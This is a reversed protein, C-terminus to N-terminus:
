LAFGKALMTKLFGTVKDTRDFKGDAVEALFFEFTHTTKFQTAYSSDRELLDMTISGGPFTIVMARFEDDYKGDLPSSMQQMDSASLTKGSLSPDLVPMTVGNVTINGPLLDHVTRFALDETSTVPTRIPKAVADNILRFFALRVAGHYQGLVLSRAQRDTMGQSRYKQYEDAFRKAVTFVMINESNRVEGGKAINAAGHDFITSLDLKGNELNQLTIRDVRFQDHAVLQLIGLDELTVRLPAASATGASLAFLGISLVAVMWQKM